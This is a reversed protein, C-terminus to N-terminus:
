PVAPALFEDLGAERPASCSASDSASASLVRRWARWETCHRQEGATTCRLPPQQQDHFMALSAGTGGRHMLHAAVRLPREAPQCDCTRSTSLSYKVQAWAKALEM